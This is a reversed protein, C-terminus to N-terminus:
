ENKKIFARLFDIIMKLAKQNKHYKAKRAVLTKM